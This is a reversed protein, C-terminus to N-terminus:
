ATDSHVKEINDIPVPADIELGAVIKEVLEPDFQTSSNKRLELAAEEPTLADRYPRNATMANYADIIHLARALYPIEKEKLGEPYGSGDYREHHHKVVNLIVELGDIAQLIREGAEPHEQIVALEKESLPQTKNLVESPVTIKGIDYVSAAITLTEMENDKLNLVSAIKKVTEPPSKHYDTGEVADKGRVAAALAQVTILNAHRLRNFLKDVDDTSVTTESLNGFYCVKNRGKSKAMMLASDAAAVLSAEDDACNPFDAVGFSATVSVAEDGAKIRLDGVAKRLREAVDIADTASSEPLVIVFEEGGYRALIDITRLTDALTASVQKLVIDGTQHGFHDNVTKFYDLDLMILSLQKNYRKSRSIEKTLNDQFYRHNYIETLGDTDALHELEKTLVQLRENRKILMRAGIQGVLVIGAFILVLFGALATQAQRVSAMIPTTTAYIEFVNGVSGDAKHIPYYIELVQGGIQDGEVEVDEGEVEKIIKGAVAEKFHGKVERANGVGEKGTSAYLLTGDIGWVKVKSVSEGEIYKGAVYELEELEEGELVKDYSKGKLQGEFVTEVNTLMSDTYSEVFQDEVINSLYYGSPIGVILFIGLTILFYRNIFTGFIKSIAGRQKKLDETRMIKEKLLNIAIVKTDDNLNSVKVYFHM